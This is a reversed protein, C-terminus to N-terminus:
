YKISSFVNKRYKHLTSFILNYWFSAILSKFWDLYKFLQVKEGSIMPYHLTYEGIKVEEIATGGDLIDNFRIAYYGYYYGCYASIKLSDLNNKIEPDDQYKELLVVKYNEIIDKEISEDLPELENVVYTSKDVLQNNEDYVEGLNNWYVINLLDNSNIVGEKYLDDLLYFEGKRYNEKQACSFLFFPVVLLSFLKKM